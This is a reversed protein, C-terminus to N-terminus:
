AETTIHVPDGDECLREIWAMDQEDATIEVTAFDGKADTIVIQRTLYNM